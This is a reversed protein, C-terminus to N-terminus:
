GALQPARAVARIGPVEIGQSLGAGPRRRSLTRFKYRPSGPSPSGRAGVTQLVTTLLCRPALSGPCLLAPSHDQQWPLAQLHEQFSHHIRGRPQPQKERGKPLDLLLLAGPHRLSGSPCAVRSPVALSPRPAAGARGVGGPALASCRFKLFSHRSCLGGMGREPSGPVRDRDSHSPSRFYLWQRAGGGVGRWGRQLASGM